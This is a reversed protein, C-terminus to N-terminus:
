NRRVKGRGNCKSCRVTQYRGTNSNWLTIKGNGNCRSCTVIPIPRPRVTRTRKTTKGLVKTLKQVAKYRGQAQVESLSLTHMALTFTLIALLHKM